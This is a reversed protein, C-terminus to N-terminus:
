KLDEFLNKYEKGTIILGSNFLRKVDGDRCIKIIVWLINGEYDIVKVQQKSGECYYEIQILKANFDIEYYIGLKYGCM